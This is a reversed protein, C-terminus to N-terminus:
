PKMKVLLNELAKPTISRNPYGLKRSPIFGGHYDSGNTVILDHANCYDVYYDSAGEEKYYPSYCEIGDIGLKRFHDLYAEDLEEGNFYAPPHALIVTLGLDKLKPLLVEPGHFTLQRGFDSIIDFFDYLGEVVGQDCLYNLAKWGGVSPDRQYTKYGTLSVADIKEAAFGIIAENHEDRIRQNEAVIARLSENEPDIGYTLLHIEKSKYTASLEVGPIFTMEEDQALDIMERINGINDHDTISFLDIGTEKLEAMLEKPTQTGDSATTHIHMDMRITM